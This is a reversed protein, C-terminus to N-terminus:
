RSIYESPDNYSFYNLILYRIVGDERSQSDYKVSLTHNGADLTQNSWLVTPDSGVQSVNATNVPQPPMNDLTFIAIAGNGSLPIGYVYIQDGAAFRYTLSAQNVPCAHASVVLISLSPHV